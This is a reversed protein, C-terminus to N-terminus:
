RDARVFARFQATGKANALARRQWLPPARLIEAQSFGAARCMALLAPENFAWWNTQDGNVDSGEIFRGMARNEEARFSEALTEIVALGGRRTVHAVRELALLPHRMHYLVGLYLVIDFTGLADLDCDLLDAVVVEVKSGLAERALDFGARGPLTDPYWFESEHPPVVPEGRALQQVRYSEYGRLDMSWTYHDLAVVREAGLREAAFAFYGDYSGVDLVSKGGLHGLRLRSLETALAQPTKIGPTTVGEGLDISHWWFPVADIRARLGSADIKPVATPYGRSATM